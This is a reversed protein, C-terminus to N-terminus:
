LSVKSNIYKITEIDMGGDIEFHCGNPEANINLGTNLGIYVGIWNIEKTKNFAWDGAWFDRKFFLSGTIMRERYGKSLPELVMSSVKKFYNYNPMISCYVCEKSGICMIRSKISLPHYFFLPDFIMVYEGNAKAVGEDLDESVIWELCEPPYDLRSYWLELLENKSTSILSVLPLTDPLANIDPEFPNLTSFIKNFIRKFNQIYENIINTFEDRVMISNREVDLKNIAEVLGGEDYKVFGHYPTLLEHSITSNYFIINGMCMNELIVNLLPRGILIYCSNHHISPTFDFYIEIGNLGLLDLIIDDNKLNTYISLKIDSKWNQALRFVEEKNESHLYTMIKKDKKPIFNTIRNPSICGIKQIKVSNGMLKKALDIDDSFKVLVLDIKSLYPNQVATYTDLDPMFVNYNSINLGIPAIRDIHINLDSFEVDASEHRCIKVFIESDIGEWKIHNLLYEITTADEKSQSINKFINIKM